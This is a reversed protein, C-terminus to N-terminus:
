TSHRLTSSSDTEQSVSPTESEQSGLQSDRSLDSSHSIEDVFPLILLFELM